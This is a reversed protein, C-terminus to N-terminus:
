YTVTWAYSTGNYFRPTWELTARHDATLVEFILDGTVKGGPPLTGYNLQVNATYSSASTAGTEDGAANLLTFHVENYDRQINSRNVLQVHVVLYTDGMTPADFEGPALLTAKTVTVQVGGDTQTQGVTAVKPGSPTATAPAGAPPQGGTSPSTNTALGGCAAVLASLVLVVTLRVVTRM